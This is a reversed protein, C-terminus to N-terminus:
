KRGEQTQSNFYWKQFCYFTWVRFSNDREGSLHAMVLQSIYEPHFVGQERLLEPQIFQLLESKLSTRLWNGVPVGFGQKPADLFGKPLYDKFAEKLIHKKNWGKILQNERLSFSYNWLERNLFPSRMELNHYDATHRLKVLADGELSIKRDLRRFDSLSDVTEGQTYDDWDPQRGLGSVLLFSLEDRAFGLSLMNIYFDSRYSISDLLRRIRFRMGRLDSRQRTLRRSGKQLRLHLNEPILRTYYRNLRGIYYKNYGGFVEDGGEGTLIVAVESAAKAAIMDSALVSSNGYPEDFNFLVRDINAAFEAEEFIYERHDTKFLSAVTRSKDSEDFHKNQFGLSFTKLPTRQKQALSLAIISSDVGGSLFVGLESDTDARSFISERVRDQVEQIPDGGSPSFSYNGNEISFYRSNQTEIDIELCHDPELKKIGQYITQPAPIYTFFFYLWVGQPDIDPRQPLVSLLSRLQSSWIWGNETQTYYLPQEGFFDRVLFIKKLEKDFLGFVFKGDLSSFGSKGKLRYYKLVLDADTSNEPAQLEERLQNRNYLTGEFVLHGGSDSSVGENHASMGVRFGGTDEYFFGASEGSSFRGAGAMDQLKQRTKEICLATIFGNVGRRIRMDKNNRRM